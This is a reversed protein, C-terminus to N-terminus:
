HVFFLRFSKFKKLLGTLTQSSYGSEVLHFFVCIASYALAIRVLNSQFFVWKDDEKNFALVNREALTRGLFSHWLVQYIYVSLTLSFFFYLSNTRIYLLPLDFFLKLYKLKSGLKLSRHHRAWSKNSDCIGTVVPPNSSRIEQM